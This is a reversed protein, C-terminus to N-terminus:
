KNTTVLLIPKLGCHECTYRHSHGTYLINKKAVPCTHWKAQCDQCHNDRIKCICTYTRLSNCKPCKM